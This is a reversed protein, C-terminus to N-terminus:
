IHDIIEIIKNAHTSYKIDVNTLLLLREELDELNSIILNDEEKFYSALVPLDFELCLEKGNLEVDVTGYTKKKLKSVLQKRNCSM